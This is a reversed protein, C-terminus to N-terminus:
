VTNLQTSTSYEGSSFLCVRHTVLFLFIVKTIRRAHALVRWGRLSHGLSRQERVMTIRAECSRLRQKRLVYQRWSQWAWRTVMATRLQALSARQRGEQSRQLLARWAGLVRGQSQLVHWSRCKRRQSAWTQWAAWCAQLQRGQRWKQHDAATQNKSQRNSTAHRQQAWWDVARSLAHKRQLAKAKARMLRSARAHESWTALTARVMRERIILRHSQETLRLRRRNKGVEALQRLAAQLRSRDGHSTAV